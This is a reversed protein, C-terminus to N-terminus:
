PAETTPVPAAREAAEQGVTQRGHFTGMGKASQDILEALAAEADGKANRTV